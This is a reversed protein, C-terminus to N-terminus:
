RFCRMFGDGSIRCIAPTSGFSLFIAGSMCSICCWGSISLGAEPLLRHRQRQFAPRREPADVCGVANTAFHYGVDGWSRSMGGTPDWSKKAEQAFCLQDEAIRTAERFFGCSKTDGGGAALSCPAGMVM